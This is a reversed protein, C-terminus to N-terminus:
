PRSTGPPPVRANPPMHSGASRDTARGGPRANAPAPMRRGGSREPAKRGTSLRAESRGARDGEDRVAVFSGPAQPRPRHLLSPAHTRTRDRRARSVVSRARERAPAAAVELDDPCDPRSGLTAGVPRDRREPCHRWECPPRPALGAWSALMADVSDDRAARFYGQEATRDREAEVQVIQEEVVKLLAKTRRIEARVRPPLPEGYGTRVTELREVLRPSRPRLDFIGHLMLLGGIANALMTRQKVLRRRERMVRRRDEEEISPIRVTSMAQQDGRDFAILARVMRAADVRDTKVRAGKRSIPLSAPDLVLTEIRHRAMRRALWFGEYGAEYGCVVRPEVGDDHRLAESAQGILADLAVTDAAPISHLEIRSAGPARLGVTWSKRSVEVAVHITRDPECERRDSKDGIAM